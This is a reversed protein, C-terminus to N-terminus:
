SLLAALEHLSLNTARDSGLFQTRKLSEPDRSASDVGIPPGPVEGSDLAQSATCPRRDGNRVDADDAADDDGAMIASDFLPEGELARIARRSVGEAYGAAMTAADLDYDSIVGAEHLLTLATQSRFAATSVEKNRRVLLANRELMERVTTEWADGRNVQLTAWAEASRTAKQALALEWGLVVVRRLLAGAIAAVLFLVLLVVLVSAATM